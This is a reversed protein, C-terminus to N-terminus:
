VARSVYTKTETNIRIKEGTEIFLPVQVVLGTEMTANKMAGTATNGAVAGSTESIVLEINKPLEIFIPVGDLYTAVVKHGEVLFPLEAELTNNALTFQSYDDSDMFFCNSDDKYLFQATKKMLDVLEVKEENSYSLQTLSGTELNKVKVKITAQGRGKKIHDYKIVLFSQDNDKFVVGVKLDNSNIMAM